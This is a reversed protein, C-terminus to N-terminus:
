RLTLPIEVTEKGTLRRSREDPQSFGAFLKFNKSDIHREGEEDVVSMARNPVTMEVKKEEGAKLSIRKFACLNYNPVALKSDLDKIYIQVVEDTDTDGENKLFVEVRIDSEKTVEGLVKAEKM